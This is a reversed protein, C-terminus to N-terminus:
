ERLNALRSFSGSTMSPALHTGGRFHYCHSNMSVGVRESEKREREGSGASGESGAGGSKNYRHSFSSSWRKRAPM